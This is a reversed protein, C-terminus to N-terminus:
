VIDDENDEMDDQCVECIDSAHRDSMLCGCMICEKM